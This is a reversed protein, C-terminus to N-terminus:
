AGNSIEERKADELLSMDVRQFAWKYEFDANPDIDPTLHKGVVWVIGVGDHVEALVPDHQFLIAYLDDSCKYTYHRGSLDKNFCCAITKM